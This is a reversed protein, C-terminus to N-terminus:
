IIFGLRIIQGPIHCSHYIHPFVSCVLETVYFGENSTGLKKLWDLFVWKVSSVSGNGHECFGIAPRQETGTLYCEIDKADM